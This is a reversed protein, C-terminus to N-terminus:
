VKENIAMRSRRCPTVRTDLLVRVQRKRRDNKRRDEDLLSPVPDDSQQCFAEGSPNREDAFDYRVNADRDAVLTHVPETGASGARAPLHGIAESMFNRSAINDKTIKV